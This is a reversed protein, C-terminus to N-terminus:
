VEFYFSSVYEEIQNRSVLVCYDRVLFLILTDFWYVNDSKDTPRSGGKVQMYTIFMYVLFGLILHLFNLTIKWSYKLKKKFIVNKTKKCIVMFMDWHLPNIRLEKDFSNIYTDYKASMHVSFITEYILLLGIGITIYTIPKLLILTFLKLKAPFM